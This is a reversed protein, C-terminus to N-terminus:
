EGKSISFYKSGPSFIFDASSSTNLLRSM